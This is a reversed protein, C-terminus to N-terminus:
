IIDSKCHSIVSRFKGGNQRPLEDYFEAQIASSDGLIVRLDTLTRNLFGNQATQSDTVLKLEFRSSEHQILQYQLVENKHKFISWVTRPHVFKGDPLVIIDEVRGEIESLLSFTRGCSCKRSSISALDGLRYNLLVTGQNVLNSIVVEGKEGNVVEKGETNVIKVHCLDEHLHFGKRNECFFGIKFCEMAQYTSLVPLGYKEEIFDKGAQTMADGGYMLVQPLHVKMGHLHITKFFAELYSGYGILVNPQFVNVEQAM